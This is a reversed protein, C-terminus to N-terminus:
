LECREIKQKKSERKSTSDSKILDQPFSQASSEKRRGNISFRELCMHDAFSIRGTPQPSIWPQFIAEPFISDHDQYISDSTGLQPNSPTKRERQGGVGQM